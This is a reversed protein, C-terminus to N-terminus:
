RTWVVNGWALFQYIVNLLSGGFVGLLVSELIYPKKDLIRRIMRGFLWPGLLAGAWAGLFGITDMMLTM